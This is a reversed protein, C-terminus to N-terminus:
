SYPSALVRHYILPHVKGGLKKMMRKMMIIMIIHVQEQRRPIVIGKGTCALLYVVVTM